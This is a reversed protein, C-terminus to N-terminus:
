SFGSNRGFFGSNRGLLDYRAKRIVIKSPAILGQDKLLQSSCDLAALSEPRPKSRRPTIAMGHKESSNARKPTHEIIIHFTTIKQTSFFLFFVSHRNRLSFSFVM